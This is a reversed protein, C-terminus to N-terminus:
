IQMSFIYGNEKDSKDYLFKGEWDEENTVAGFIAYSYLVFVNDVGRDDMFNMIKAYLERARDYDHLVAHVYLTYNCLSAIDQKTNELYKEHANELLTKAKILLRIKRKARRARWFTQVRLVYYERHDKFIWSKPKSWTARKTIVNAYFVVDRYFVGHRKICNREAWTRPTGSLTYEAYVGLVRRPPHADDQCKVWFDFNRIDDPDPLSKMEYIKRYSSRAKFGRWFRQANSALLRSVRYWWLRERLFSKYYSLAVAM